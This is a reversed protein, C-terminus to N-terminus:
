AHAVVQGFLRSAANPRYVLNNAFFERVGETAAVQGDFLMTVEDATVFAFDLDHTVLVVSVGEDALGRVIGSVEACAM